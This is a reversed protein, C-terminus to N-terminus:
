LLEPWLVPLVAPLAPLLPLVVPLAPLLLVLPRVPPLVVVVVVALGAVVLLAVWLVRLVDVVALLLPLVLPLVVSWWLASLPARAAVLPPGAGTVLVALQTSM